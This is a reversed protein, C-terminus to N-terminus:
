LGHFQGQGIILSNGIVRLRWGKLIGKFGHFAGSFSIVASRGTYKRAIKVANEVAEAGANTFFVKEFHGGAGDRHRAAAYGRVQADTVRHWNM